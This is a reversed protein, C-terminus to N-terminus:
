LLDRWENPVVASVRAYDLVARGEARQTRRPHRARDEVRDDIHVTDMEAGSGDRDVLRQLISSQRRRRDVDGTVATSRSVQRGQGRHRDRRVSRLPEEEVVEELRVRGARGEGDEAPRLARDVTVGGRDPAPEDCAVTEVEEDVVQ